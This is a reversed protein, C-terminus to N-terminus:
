LKITEFLYQNQKILTSAKKQDKKTQKAGVPGLYCHKLLKFSCSITQYKNIELYTTQYKQRTNIKQRKSLYPLSAEVFNTYLTSMHWSQNIKQQMYQIVSLKKKSHTSEQTFMITNFVYPLLYLLILIVTNSSISDKREHKFHDFILNEKFDDVTLNEKFHGLFCIRHINGWSYPLSAEVFFINSLQQNYKWKRSM